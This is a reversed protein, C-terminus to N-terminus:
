DPTIEAIVYGSSNEIERTLTSCHDSSDVLYVAFDKESVVPEGSSIDDDMCYTFHRNTFQKRMAVMSEESVGYQKVLSVIINLEDQRSM